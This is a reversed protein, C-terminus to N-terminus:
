TLVKPGRSLEDNNLLITIRKNDPSLVVALLAFVFVFHCNPEKDRFVTSLDNSCILGGGRECSGGIRSLLLRLLKVVGTNSQPGFDAYIRLCVPVRHVDIKKKSLLQPHPTCLINEFYSDEFKAQFKHFNRRFIWLIEM